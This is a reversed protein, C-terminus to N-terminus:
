SLDCVIGIKKWRFSKYYVLIRTCSPFGLFEFHDQFQPCAFQIWDRLSWFTVIAKVEISRCHGYCYCNKHGPVFSHFHTSLQVTHAGHYCCFSQGEQFDLNHFNCHIMEQDTNNWSMQMLQLGHNLVFSLRSCKTEVMYM